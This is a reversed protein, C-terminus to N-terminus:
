GEGEGQRHHQSAIGEVKYCNSAALITEPTYYLSNTICQVNMHTLFQLVKTPSAGAYLIASSMLINGAPLNGIM